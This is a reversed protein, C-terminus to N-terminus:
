AISYRPDHHFPDIANMLSEPCYDGEEAEVVQIARTLHDPSALLLASSTNGSAFAGSMSQVTHSLAYM